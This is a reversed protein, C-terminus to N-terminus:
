MENLEESLVLENILGTQSSYSPAQLTPALGFLYVPKILNKRVEDYVLLLTSIRMAYQLDNCVFINEEIEPPINIKPLSNWLIISGKEMKRSLWVIIRSPISKFFLALIVDNEEILRLEDESAEEDIIKLSFLVNKILERYLKKYLNDPQDTVVILEIKSNLAKQLNLVVDDFIDKIKKSGELFKKLDYLGNLLCKLKQWEDHIARNAYFSPKNEQLLTIWSKLEDLKLEFISQERLKTEVTFIVCHAKGDRNNYKECYKEFKQFLRYAESYEGIWSLAEAKYFLIENRIHDDNHIDSKRLADDFIIIARHYNKNESHITGLCTYYTHNLEAAKKMYQEARRIDSVSGKLNGRENYFHGLGHYVTILKASMFPTSEDLIKHFLKIANDFKYLAEYCYGKHILANIKLEDPIDLGILKNICFIANKFRQIKHNLFAAIWWIRYDRCDNNKLWKMVKYLNKALEDDRSLWDLVVCINILVYINGHEVIGQFCKLSEEYELDKFHKAAKDFIGQKNLM